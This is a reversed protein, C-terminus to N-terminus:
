KNEKDKGCSLAKSLVMEGFAVGPLHSEVLQPHTALIEGLVGNQPILALDAEQLMSADFYSDGAAMLWSCNIREKFRKIAVGKTLNKPLVYLKEKHNALSVLELDLVEALSAMIQKVDSSKCYVFLEDVLKAALTVSPDESLVALAKTLEGLSEEILAATEIQWVEDIEGDVLLIGGNSTLAYPSVGEALLKIRRYQALSRTTLPVFETVKAVEQLLDYAMPTMFSLKKGDKVEVCVGQDYQKYSYILTNDLDSVFLM